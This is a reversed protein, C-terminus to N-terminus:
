SLQRLVPIIEREKLEFYAKSYKWSGQKWTRMINRVFSMAINDGLFNGVYKLVIGKRVTWSGSASIICDTRRRNKHGFESLREYTICALAKTTNADREHGCCMRTFSKSSSSIRKM